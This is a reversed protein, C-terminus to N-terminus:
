GSYRGLAARLQAKVQERLSKPSLVEVQAGFGLIWPLLDAPNQSPISLDLSGDM